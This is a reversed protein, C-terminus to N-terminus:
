EWIEVRAPNSRWGNYKDNGDDDVGTKYKIDFILMNESNLHMNVFNGMHFACFREIFVENSSGQGNKKARIFVEPYVGTENYDFTMEYDVAQNGSATHGFLVFMYNRFWSIVEVDAIPFDYDGSGAGGDTAFPMYIDVTDWDLSYAIYDGSATKQDHNITFCTWIVSGEYLEGATLKSQLEPALCIGLPTIILPQFTSSYGVIAPGYPYTTINDGTKFCGSLGFMLIAVLAFIVKKM